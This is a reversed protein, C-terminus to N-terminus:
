HALCHHSRAPPRAEPVRYRPASYGFFFSLSTLAFITPAFPLCTVTNLFSMFLRHYSTPPFFTCADIPGFATGNKIDELLEELKMNYVRDIIDARDTARQGPEFLLADLIEPWKPNCTFTIFLDPPGYVRCIAIADHYNQLMYHRGGTHSAPLMIRKGVDTGDISGSAVADVVGQLSEVRLDDQHDLIYQLRCEDVCARADM